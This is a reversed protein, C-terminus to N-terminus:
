PHLSARDRATQCPATPHSRCRRDSPSAATSSAADVHSAGLRPFSCCLCLRSWVQAMGALEIVGVLLRRCAPPPGRQARRSLARSRTARAVNSASRRRRRSSMARRSSRGGHRSSVSRGHLWARAWTALRLCRTGAQLGEYRALCSAHSAQIQSTSPRVQNTPAGEISRMRSDIECSSRPPLMKKSRSAGTAVGARM